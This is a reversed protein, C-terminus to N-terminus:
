KSIKDKVSSGARKGNKYFRPPEIRLGKRLITTLTHQRLTKKSSTFHFLETMILVVNRYSHQFYIMEEGTVTIIGFIISANANFSTM